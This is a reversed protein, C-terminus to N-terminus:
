IIKEMILQKDISLIRNYKQKLNLHLDVYDILSISFPKYLDIICMLQHVNICENQIYNQDYSLGYHKKNQFWEGNM